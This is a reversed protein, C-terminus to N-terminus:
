TILSSVILHTCANYKTTTKKLYFVYILETKTSRNKQRNFDRASKLRCVKSRLFAAQNNMGTRRQIFMYIQLTKWASKCWTTDTNEEEVEERGGGWDLLSLASIFALSM